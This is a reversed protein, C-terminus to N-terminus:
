DSANLGGWGMLLFHSTKKVWPSEPYILFFVGCVIFSRPLTMMVFVIQFSGCGNKLSHWSDDDYVTPPESMEVISGLYM